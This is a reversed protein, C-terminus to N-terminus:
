PHILRHLIVPPCTEGPHHEKEPTQQQTDREVQAAWSLGRVGPVGAHWALCNTCTCCASSETYLTSNLSLASQTCTSCSSGGPRALSAGAPSSGVHNPCRTFALTSSCRYTNCDQTLSGLCDVLAPLQPWAESCRSQVNHMRMLLAWQM